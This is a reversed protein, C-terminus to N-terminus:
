DAFRPVRHHPEVSRFASQAGQSGPKWLARCKDNPQCRPRSWWLARLKRQGAIDRAPRISVGYALNTRENSCDIPLLFAEYSILKLARLVQGVSARHVVLHCVRWWSHFRRARALRLPDSACNRRRRDGGSGGNRPLLSRYIPLANSWVPSRETPVRDGDVRPCHGLHGDAIACKGTSGGRHSGDPGVVGISQRPCQRALRPFAQRTDSHLLAGRGAPNAPLSGLWLSCFVCCSGPLPKLTKGCGKCDYFAVCANVPMTETAQHGCDPCTLTSQLQPETM